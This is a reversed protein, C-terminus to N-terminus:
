LLIRCSRSVVARSKRSLCAIGTRSRALRELMGIMEGGLRCPGRDAALKRRVGPLKGEGVVKGGLGALTQRQGRGVALDRLDNEAEFVLGAFGAVQEPGARQRAQQRRADIAEGVRRMVRAQGRERKREPTIAEAAIALRILGLHPQHRGVADVDGVDRPHRFRSGQRAVEDIRRRVVHARFLQRQGRLRERRAKARAEVHM